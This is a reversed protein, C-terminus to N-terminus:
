FLGGALHNNKPRLLANKLSFIDNWPSGPPFLSERALQPTRMVMISVAHNSGRGFDGM